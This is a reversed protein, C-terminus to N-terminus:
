RLGEEGIHKVRPPPFPKKVRMQNMAFVINIFGKNNIIVDLGKPGYYVSKKNRRKQKKKM